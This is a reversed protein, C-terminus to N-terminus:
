ILDSIKEACEKNLPLQLNVICAVLQLVVDAKSRLLLPILSLTKFEKLRQNAREVQIRCSAIEKTWSAEKETFKNAHDM